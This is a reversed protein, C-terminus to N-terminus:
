SFCPLAEGMRSAFSRPAFSMTMSGMKVSVAAFASWNMGMLGEVSPARAFAMALTIM